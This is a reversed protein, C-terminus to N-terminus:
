SIKHRISKKIKKWIEYRVLVTDDKIKVSMKVIM